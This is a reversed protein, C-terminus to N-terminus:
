GATCMSWTLVQGSLKALLIQTKLARSGLLYQVGVNGQEPMKLQKCPMMFSDRKVLVSQWNLMKVYLNIELRYIEHRM